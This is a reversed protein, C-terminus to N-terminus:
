NIIIIRKRFMANIIVLSCSSCSRKVGRKQLAPQTQHQHQVIETLNEMVNSFEDLSQFNQSFTKNAWNLIKSSTSCREPSSDITPLTPVDPCSKKRINAYCYRSSGRQGLRRPKVKVIVFFLDILSCLRLEHLLLQIRVLCYCVVCQEPDSM